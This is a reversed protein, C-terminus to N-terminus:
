EGVIKKFDPDDWYAKFDEDTKASAKNKSDLGIAHRLDSLFEARKKMLSYACARNYYSTADDPKVKLASDYAQIAEAHRGLKALNLGKLNLVVAFDPKIKLAADYAQIAEEHRGLKALVFGKKYWADASNVNAELIKELEALAEAFRGDFYYSAARKDYDEATLKGGAAEFAAMRREFGEVKKLIKARETESISTLAQINPIDAKFEDVRKRADERLREIDAVIQKAETLLKRERFWVYTVAAGFLVLLIGILGVLVEVWTAATNQCAISRDLTGYASDLLREQQTKVIMLSDMQHSLHQVSAQLAEVRQILASDTKQPTATEAMAPCFLALLLLLIVFVRM